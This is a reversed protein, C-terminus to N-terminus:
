ESKAIEFEARREGLDIILQVFRSISFLMYSFTFLFIFFSWEPIAYSQILIGLVSVSIALYLTFQFSFMIENYIELEKLLALFENDSFSALVALGTLIFAILTIALQTSLEILQNNIVPWNLAYEGVISVLLIILSLVVDLDTLLNWFGYNRASNWFGDTM